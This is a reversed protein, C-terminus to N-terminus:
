EDREGRACAVTQSTVRPFATVVVDRAPTHITGWAYRSRGRGGRQYTRSGEPIHKVHTTPPDVHCEGDAFFRCGGCVKPRNAQDSM